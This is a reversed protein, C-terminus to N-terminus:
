FEWAIGLNGMNHRNGRGGAMSLKVGQAIQYRLGAQYAPKREQEGFTELTLVWAGLVPMDGGVGWTGVHGHGRTWTQGLNLHLSPGATFRWSALASLAHVHHRAQDSELRDRTYAYKLGASLGQDAQLPVWKVAAGVARRTDSPTFPRDRAHGLDLETEVHHLPSYGISADWGRHDADKSWGLEVKASGREMTSADEVAMPREAWVPLSLAALCSSLVTARWHRVVHHM